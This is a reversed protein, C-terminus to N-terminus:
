GSGTAGSSTAPTGSRLVASSPAAPSRFTALASHRRHRRFQGAPLTSASSRTSIRLRHRPARPAPVDPFIAGAHRVTPRLREGHRRHRHRGVSQQRPLLQRDRHGHVARRDHPEREPVLQCDRTDATGGTNLIGYALKVSSGATRMATVCAPACPRRAAWDLTGVSVDIATQDFRDDEPLGIRSVRRRNPARRPRSFLRFTASAGGTLWVDGRATKFSGGEFSGTLRPADTAAGRRTIVQVVAGM